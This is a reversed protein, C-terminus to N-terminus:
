EGKEKRRGANRTAYAAWAARNSERIVRQGLVPRLVDSVLLLVAEDLRMPTGRWREALERASDEDVVLWKSFDQTHPGPDGGVFYPRVDPTPDYDMKVVWLEGLPSAMHEGTKMAM